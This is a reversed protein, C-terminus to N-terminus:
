AYDISSLLVKLSEDTLDFHEQVHTTVQKLSKNLFVPKMTKREGQTKMRVTIGEIYSIDDLNLYIDESSDITHVKLFKPMHSGGKM